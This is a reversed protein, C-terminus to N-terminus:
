TRKQAAITKKMSALLARQALGMAPRQIQPTEEKDLVKPPASKPIEPTKMEKVKIEVNHKHRERIEAATRNTAELLHDYRPDPKLAFVKQGKEDFTKDLFEEMFASEMFKEFSEFKHWRVDDDPKRCTMEAYLGTVKQVTGRTAGVAAITHDRIRNLPVLAM